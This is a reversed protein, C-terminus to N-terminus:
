SPLTTSPPKSPINRWVLVSGDRRQPPGLLSILYRGLRTDPRTIALIAAPRWRDLTAYV